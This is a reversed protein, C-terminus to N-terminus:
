STRYARTLTAERMRGADDQFVQRRSSSSCTGAPGVSKVALSAWAPNLGSYRPVQEEECV